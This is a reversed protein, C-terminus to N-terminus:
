KLSIKKARGLKSFIIGIEFLVMLPLAMLFQSFIDPPTLVAAIIFILVVAHRRKRSLFEPTVLGIKTLFLIILPLEFVLGFSLILLGAFSIYNDISIVPRILETAFSLLFRVAIPVAIFYGFAAGIYFFVLSLSGFIITYKKEEPKLGSDIFKWVQYVVFPVALFIGGFISVKIKAIFAEYPAIFALRGVPRTLHPIIKDVFYYALCSVAFIFIVIKIIQIRLEELHEILTLKEEM